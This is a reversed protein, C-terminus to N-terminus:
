RTPNAVVRVHVHLLRDVTARSSDRQASELSRSSVLANVESGLSLLGRLIIFKQVLTKCVLIALLSRTEALPAFTLIKAVRRIRAPSTAPRTWCCRCRIVGLAIRKSADALDLEGRSRRSPLRCGSRAMRRPRVSRCNRNLWCPRLFTGDFAPTRRYPRRGHNLPRSPRRTSHHAVNEM